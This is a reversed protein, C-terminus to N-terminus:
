RYKAIGCRVGCVDRTSNLRGSVVLTRKGGEAMYAAQAAKIASDPVTGLGSSGESRCVADFEKEGAKYAARIARAETGNPARKLTESM